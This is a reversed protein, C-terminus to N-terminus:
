AASGSTAAPTWEYCDGDWHVDIAMGDAPKVRPGVGGYYEAFDIDPMGAQETVLCTNVETRCDGDGPAACHVATKDNVIHITHYSM